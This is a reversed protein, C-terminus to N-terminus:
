TKGFHNKELFAVNEAVTSMVNWVALSAWGLSAFSVTDKSHWSSYLGYMELINILIYKKKM